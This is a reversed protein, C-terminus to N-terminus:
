MEFEEDCDAECEEEFDEECDEDQEKCFGHHYDDDLAIVQIVIADAVEKPTIIEPMKFRAKCLQMQEETLSITEGNKSTGVILFTGAIIENGVRRNGELGMLKGEDNCVISLGKGINYFEIYGDVIQQLSRFGSEIDKEYPEKSPEVILVRM